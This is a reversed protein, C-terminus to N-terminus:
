SPPSAWTCPACSARSATAMTWTSSSRFRATALAAIMYKVFDDKCYALETPHVAIIAPADNAEAAEVVTRFLNSESVNYAGVAFHKEKAVSLMQNMNILM